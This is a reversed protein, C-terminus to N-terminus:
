SRMYKLSQLLDDFSNLNLMENEEWHKYDGPLWKAGNVVKSKAIQFCQELYRDTEIQKEGTIYPYVEEATKHAERRAEEPDRLTKPFTGYTGLGAVVKVGIACLMMGLYDQVEELGSGATTSCDNGRKGALRM